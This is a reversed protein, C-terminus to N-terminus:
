VRAILDIYILVYQSMEAIAMGHLCTPTTCILGREFDMERKDIWSIEAGCHWPNNRLNIDRLYVSRFDDIHNLNNGISNFYSLKPMHRLLSINFSRIVNFGVDIVHLRKYISPTDLATLSQIKNKSAGVLFISHQIWHLDPLVILNNNKM